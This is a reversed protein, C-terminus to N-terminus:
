EIRSHLEFGTLTLVSTDLDGSSRDAGVFSVQGLPHSQLTWSTAEQDSLPTPLLGSYIPESPLAELVSLQAPLDLTAVMPDDGFYLFGLGVGHLQIMEPVEPMALPTFRRSDLEVLSLTPKGEFFSFVPDVGGERHVVLAHEGTPDLYAAHLWKPLVWSETTGAPFQMRVLQNSDVANTYLLAESGDANPVSQGVAASVAFLQSTGTATEIRRVWSTSGRSVLLLYSGDTSQDLDTIKAPMTVAATAGSGLDIQWIDAVGSFRVWARDGDANVFVEEATRTPSLEILDTTNLRRPRLTVLTRPTLIAAMPDAGDRNFVTDVPQEGSSFVETKGSILDYWMHDSLTPLAKLEDATLQDPNLDLLMFAGAPHLRLRNLTPRVELEFTFGTDFEVRQLLHDGWSLVWPDNEATVVLDVPDEGVPLSEIQLTGGDIRTLVNLEPNLVYIGNDAASPARATFASGPGGTGIEDPETEETTADSSRDSDGVRIGAGLEEAGCGTTVAIALVVAWSWRWYQTISWM